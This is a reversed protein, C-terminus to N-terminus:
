RQEEGGQTVPEPLGSGFFGSMIDSLEEKVRERKEPDFAKHTPRLENPTVGELAKEVRESIEDLKTDGTFNLRNAVAVADRCHQLVTDRFVKPTGEADETLKERMTSLTNEVRSYLSRIGTSIREQTRQNITNQLRELEKEGIEATLNKGQPIEQANWEIWISSLLDGASPFEERRFMQGLRSRAEEVLRPYADLFEKRAEALQEVFGDMGRQYAEYGEVSLLREGNSEEWPMTTDRHFKRSSSIVQRVKKLEKGAILRKRYSGAGKRAQKLTAVEKTVAEDTVSATWMHIRLRVLMAHRGLDFQPNEPSGVPLSGNSGKQIGQQNGQQTGQQIRSQHQIM